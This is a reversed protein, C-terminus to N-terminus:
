DFKYDTGLGFPIFTRDHFKFSHACREHQTAQTHLRREGSVSLGYRRLIRRNLLDHIDGILDDFGGSLGTEGGQIGHRGHDRIGRLDSRPM